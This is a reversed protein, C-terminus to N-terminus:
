RLEFGEDGGFQRTSQFVSLIDVTVDGDSDSVIHFIRYGKYIVERIDSDEIEPVMRGSHPFVELRDVAAFAGDVFGQAYAPAERAFYDGVAEM